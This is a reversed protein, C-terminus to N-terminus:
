RGVAECLSMDQLALNSWIPRCPLPGLTLGFKALLANLVDADFENVSLVFKSRGPTQMLRKVESALMNNQALTLYNNEIGVYQASPEAFPIFYSAPHWTALLVVSHKPLPPVRVDVYRDGYPVHGWDLPVTTAAALTMVALAAAIRLRSDAVLHIVAGMAVVGTLMELVVAYRYNGFGFEWVFYSVVVFIFLLGLGRTEAGGGDRPRHKRVRSLAFMLVAAIIASSAIAGRWERFPLESVLRSNTTAWYFPNAIAHWVDRPLFQEDRLPEPEYYPSQFIHNLLPFVPNGFDQWLTLLHHGAAGLFGLVAAAGFALFGGATKHRVAALLAILGLGPMFVAVTYKLGVAIGACLGAAALGRWPARRGDGDAVHLLCLLAALVFISNILDNSTTGLLSVFGAGSVGMLLAVARLTWREPRQRPRLVQLAIAFVLVANIGHVAGMIFAVLRPLENLPSSTLAYFLFDATPNFFGQYQAPGVDYLYRGNLYAWPGYLHYFRLDWYNDIGFSVSLLGAGGCVLPVVGPWSKFLARRGSSAKGNLGDLHRVLTM